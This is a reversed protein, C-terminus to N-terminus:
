LNRLAEVIAPILTEYATAIATLEEATYEVDIKLEEVAVDRSQVNKITFSAKM